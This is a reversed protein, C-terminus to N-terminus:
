TVGGRKDSHGRFEGTEVIRGIRLVAKYVDEFGNYLPALGLRINDPERFDPVVKTEGEPPNKMAGCIRFAESHRLSVHSGRVAPDEPSGLSFQSPDLIKRALGILYGSLRVSKERIAEIGAELILDLGPGAARMSLVPPTGALFRSIGGGPKFDRDFAFPEHAAFWGQIPSFLEEQRNKRVYLYAPSGPGGNLYKYTCGVALDAGAANLEVPVVGASHSLDWLVMAGADHAAKTISEIDYMFGSKFAVQTLCVLATDADILSLLDETEITIGDTSRATKLVSGEGAAKAIGRLVYLDSPFNFEDSVIVKRGHAAGLAASALKYLNVSTSDTMVAEDERAGIIRAIKAGMARPLDIWGDSWSEILRKGWGERVTDSVVDAAEVPLRGLSNGDLYILARDDIVFRKRFAALSDEADLGVAEERTYECEM